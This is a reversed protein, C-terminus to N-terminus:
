RHRPIPQSHEMPVDPLAANRKRIGGQGDDMGSQFIPTVIGPEVLTPVTISLYSGMGEAWAQIFGQQM